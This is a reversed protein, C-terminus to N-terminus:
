RSRPRDSAPQRPAEDVDEAPSMALTSLVPVDFQPLFPARAFMRSERQCCMLDFTVRVTAADHKSVVGRLVVVGVPSDSTRFVKSAPEGPQAIPGDQCREFM